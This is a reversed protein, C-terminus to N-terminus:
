NIKIGAQAVVQRWQAIEKRIQEFFQEATGGAPAMGDAQLREEMDKQALLKTIEGHLRDM